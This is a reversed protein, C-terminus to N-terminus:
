GPRRRSRSPPDPEVESQANISREARYDQANALRAIALDEGVVEALWLIQRQQETLSNAPPGEGYLVWPLDIGTVEALLVAEDLRPLGGRRWRNVTTHTTSHGRKSLQLAIDRGSLPCRDLAKKLREAISM